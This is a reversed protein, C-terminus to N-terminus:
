SHLRLRSGSNQRQFKSAWCVWPLHKPKSHLVTYFPESALAGPDLDGNLLHRALRKVDRHAHARRSRWAFAPLISIRLNNWTNFWLFAKGVIAQILTLLHKDKGKERGGYCLSLMVWASGITDWILDFIDYAKYSSTWSESKRRIGMSGDSSFQASDANVVLHCQSLVKSKM